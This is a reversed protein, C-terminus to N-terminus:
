EGFLESLLLVSRRYVCLLPYAFCFITYICVRRGLRHDTRLAPIQSVTVASRWDVGLSCLFFGGVLSVHVKRSVRLGKPGRTGTPGTAGPPGQYVFSFPPYLSFLPSPCLYFLPKCQCVVSSGPQQGQLAAQGRSCVIPNTTLDTVWM